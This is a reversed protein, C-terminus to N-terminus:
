CFRHKHSIKLDKHHAQTYFAPSLARCCGRQWGQQTSPVAQGPQLQPNLPIVSPTPSPPHRALQFESIISGSDHSAKRAVRLMRM